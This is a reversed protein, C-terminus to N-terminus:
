AQHPVLAGVPMDPCEASTALSIISEIKLGLPSDSMIPMTQPHWSAGHTLDLQASTLPAGPKFSLLAGKRRVNLWVPMSSNM